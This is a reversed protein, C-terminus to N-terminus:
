AHAGDYAALVTAAIGDWGYRSTARERARAGMREAKSPDALLAVLARAFATPDSPAVLLGTEGTEVDATLAGLATAVVPRGFAYAVQLVGSATASRYPLAVVTATRLLPGVEDLPVYRPDITTHAAIGLRAVHEDLSAPEMGAAPGAILLHARVHTLVIAFADILDAVGKSPRLGGFFLVVPTGPQIGYHERLDREPDATELFMMENGHPIVRVVSPDVPHHALFRDATERDHLFVVDFCRYVGASLRRHAWRTLRGAERPEFEHCIQALTIGARQLRRLFLIQFPFRIVGFQAIDPELELIRHSAKWWAAVYRIGRGVRRVKRGVKAVLAPVRSRRPRSEITPWLRLTPEVEFRHPLSILEYDTSTILTVRAGRDALATCLQYAYHVLGGVGNPEVVVIRTM